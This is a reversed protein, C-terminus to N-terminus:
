QNTKREPLPTTVEPWKAVDSEAETWTLAYEIERLWGYTHGARRARNLRRLRTAHRRSM